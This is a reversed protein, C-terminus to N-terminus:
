ALYAASNTDWSFLPKCPLRSVMFFVYEEWVRSETHWTLVMRDFLASVREVFAQKDSDSVKHRRQWKKPQISAKEFEIYESFAMWEEAIEGNAKANGIRREFDERENLLQVTQSFRKNSAVMIQEYEEPGYNETIFTSFESFTDQITAHIVSLREQYADFVLQRVADRKQSDTQESYAKMLLDRYHNWIDHSQIQNAKKSFRCSQQFGVNPISGKTQEIAEEWAVMMNNDNFQNKQEASANKNDKAKTTEAEMWLGYMKWLRVSCRAGQGTWHEPELDLATEFVQRVVEWPADAVIEDAIWEAYMDESLRFLSAMSKRAERLDNWFPYQSSKGIDRYHLFGRRLLTIYEVHSDYLWPKEALTGLLTAVREVELESLEQNSENKTGEDVIMREDEEISGTSYEVDEM